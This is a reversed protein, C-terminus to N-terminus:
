GPSDLTVDARAGALRYRDSRRVADLTALCPEGAHLPAGARVIITKGRGFDRPHGKTMMRQTGWLVVAIKGRLDLGVLDDHGYEPATIGYGVWVVEGQVRGNTSFTFPQWDRKVELAQGGLKLANDGRMAAGVHIALRNRGAVAFPPM